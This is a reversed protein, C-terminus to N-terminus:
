FFYDRVLKPIPFIPPTPWFNPKRLKRNRMKLSEMAFLICKLPSALLSQTAECPTWCGPCAQARIKTVISKTKENALISRLSHSSGVTGLPVSWHVCPTVLGKAGIVVSNKGAVCAVPHKGARRYFLMGGVYLARRVVHDFGIRIPIQKLHNALFNAANETELFLTKLKSSNEAHRYFPSKRGLTVIHLTDTQQAFEAIRAVEGENATTVTTEYTVKLRQRATAQLSKLNRRLYTAAFFNGPMGRLTDHLEAKGDLSINLYIRMQPVSELLERVVEVPRYSDLGNTTISLLSLRPLHHAASRLIPALDARLFPEGGTISLWCVSKPTNQFLSEYDALTFDTAASRKPEKWIDCTQCRSNCVSTISLNLKVLNKRFTALSFYTIFRLAWRISEWWM